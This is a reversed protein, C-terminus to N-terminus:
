FAAVAQAVALYTKGTGAPGIVLSIDNNQCTEVLRRQGESKPVIKGQKTYLVVQEADNSKVHNGESILAALSIVDGETLSSKRSFTNMMESIVEEAQTVPQEDGDLFITDGRLLIKCPFSDELIKLNVDAVGAM